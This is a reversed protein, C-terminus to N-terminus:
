QKGLLLQRMVCQVFLLVEEALIEFQRDPALQNLKEASLGLEKLAKVAESTGKATNLFVNAVDIAARALMVWGIKRLWKDTHSFQKNMKGTQLSVDKLADVTM